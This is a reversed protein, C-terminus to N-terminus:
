IFPLNSNNLNQFNNQVEGSNPHLGSDYKDRGIGLDQAVVDRSKDNNAQPLNEV